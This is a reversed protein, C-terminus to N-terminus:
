HVSAVDLGSAVPDISACYGQIKGWGWSIGHRMYVDRQYRSTHGEGYVRGRDEISKEM